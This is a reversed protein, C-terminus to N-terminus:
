EEDTVTKKKSSPKLKSIIRYFYNRFVVIAGLIVGIIAQLVISGTGPDLYGFHM